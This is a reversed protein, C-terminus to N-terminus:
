EAALLSNTAAHPKGLISRFLELQGETTADWSFQEAYIRTAIRDPLNRMLANVADVSSNAFLNEVVADALPDGVHRMPDLFSDTWNAATQFVPAM